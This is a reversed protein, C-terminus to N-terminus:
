SHLLNLLEIRSQAGVKQFVNYIHTRVTAETIGLQFAIEKNTLGQAILNAMQRERATLSFRSAVEDSIEGFAVSSNPDKALVQVLAVLISINIGLYILYELSIPSYTFTAVTDLVFELLGLPVFLLCNIGIGGLLTRLARHSKDSRARLLVLGVSGMVVAICLYSVIRWPPSSAILLVMNRNGVLAGLLHVTQMTITVICGIGAVRFLLPSKTRLLKIGIMNLIAGYLAIGLVGAVMSFVLDLRDSGSILDLVQSAYYYVAVIALNAIFLTQVLFMRGIFPQGLRNDLVGLGVLSAFGTSFILIYLLLVVHGM